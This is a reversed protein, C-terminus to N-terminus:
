ENASKRVDCINLSTLTVPPNVVYKKPPNTKDRKNRTTLGIRLIIVSGSFIAVSPMNEKKILAIIKYKSVTKTVFTVIPLNTSGPNEKAPKTIGLIDIM